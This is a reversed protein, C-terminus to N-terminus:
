THLYFPLFIVHVKKQAHTFSGREKANGCLEGRGKRRGRGGVGEGRLWVVVM